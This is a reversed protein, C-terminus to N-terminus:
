IYIYIYNFGCFCVCVCVCVCVSVCMFVAMYMYVCVHGCEGVHVRLGDMTITYSYKCVKCHSDRNVLNWM